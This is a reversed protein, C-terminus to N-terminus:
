TAYPDEEGLAERLAARARALRSKVTGLTLGTASAIEPYDLDHQARLILVARHEASLTALAAAVRAGRERLDATHEPSPGLAAQDPPAPVTVLHRQSRDAQRLRDITARTAITLAWTELRAPGAPDFRRLGRVIHVFADQAADDVLDRRPGAIRAVLAHVPRALHAVLEAVAARDGEQARALTVAAVRRPESPVNATM